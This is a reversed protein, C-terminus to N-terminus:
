GTRGHIDEETNGLMEQIETLACGEQYLRVAKKSATDFADKLFEAVPLPMKQNELLAQGIEKYQEATIRVKVKM